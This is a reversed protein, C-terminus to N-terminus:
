EGDAEAKYVQKTAEICSDTTIAGKICGQLWVMDLDHSKFVREKFSEMISPYTSIREIAIIFDETTMKKMRKEFMQQAIGHILEERSERKFQEEDLTALERDSLWENGRTANIPTVTTM